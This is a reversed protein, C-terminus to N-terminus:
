IFFNMWDHLMLRRFRRSIPELSLKSSAILENNDRRWIPNNRHVKSHGVLNDTSVDAFVAFNM